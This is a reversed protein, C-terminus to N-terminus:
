PWCGEGGVKWNGIGRGTWGTGPSGPNVGGPWGPVGVTGGGM